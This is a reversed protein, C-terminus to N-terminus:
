DNWMPLKFKFLSAKLLRKFNFPLFGLRPPGESSTTTSQSVIRGIIQTSSSPMGGAHRDRSPKELMTSLEDCLQRRFIDLMAQADIKPIWPPLLAPIM